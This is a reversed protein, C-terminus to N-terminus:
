RLTYLLFKIENLVFLLFDQLGTAGIMNLIASRPDSEEKIFSFSSVWFVQAPTEQATKGTHHRVDRSQPATVPSPHLSSSLSLGPLCIFVHSSSGPFSTFCYGKAFFSFMFLTWIGLTQNAMKRRELRHTQWCASSWFLFCLSFHCVRRSFPAITLRLPLYDMLLGFLQFRTHEETPLHHKSIKDPRQVCSNCSVVAKVAWKVAGARGRCFSILCSNFCQLAANASDNKLPQASCFGAHAERVTLARSPLTLILWIRFQNAPFVYLPIFYSFKFWSCESM